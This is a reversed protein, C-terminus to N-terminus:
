CVRCAEVFGSPAELAESNKSEHLNPNLKESKHPDPDLKGFYHLHLETLM